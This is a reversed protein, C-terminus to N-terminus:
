EKEKSLVNYITIYENAIKEWSFHENSMKNGKVAINDRLDENEILKIIARSLEIHDKESVLIGTEGDHIIDPIGGM